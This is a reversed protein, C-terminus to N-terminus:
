RGCRYRCSPSSAHRRRPWSSMVVHRRYCIVAAAAGCPVVVAVGRLGALAVVEKVVAAGDEEGDGERVVRRAMGWAAAEQASWMHGTLVLEMAHSNGGGTITGTNVGPQSFKTNPAALLIDAATLV